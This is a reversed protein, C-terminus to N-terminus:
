FMTHMPNATKAQKRAKDFKEMVQDYIEESIGYKEVALQKGHANALWWVDGSMVEYTLAELLSFLATMCEKDTPSVKVKSIKNNEAIVLENTDFINMKIGLNQLYLM